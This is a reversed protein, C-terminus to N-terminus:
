VRKSGNQYHHNEILVDNWYVDINMYKFDLLKIHEKIFDRSVDEKEIFMRYNDEEEKYSEIKFGYELYEKFRKENEQQTAGYLEM